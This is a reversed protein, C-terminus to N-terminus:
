SMSFLLVKFFQIMAVRGQAKGAETIGIRIM